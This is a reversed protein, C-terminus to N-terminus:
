LKTQGNLEVQVFDKIKKLVEEFRDKQIGELKLTVDIIGEVDITGKKYDVKIPQKKEMNVMEKIETKQM